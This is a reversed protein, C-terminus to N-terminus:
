DKTKGVAAVKEGENIPVPSFATVLKGEPVEFIRVKGDFGATVLHNKTPHFKLAFVAGRNEKLTAVRSGDASRYIRVEGNVNGVAILSGDHNYAISCVPGPQRELERIVNVDNNAATRGQNDSIRYIRPTGLEGGYAVIDQTPHRAICMVGELLKNVDDIFQGNAVNILKMARDRSGTLLRKGDVTFTTGFVWDSHSDFKILEKGDGAAVIRVTKDACGFAIKEGDPSFSVGYLSDNSIKFSNIQKRNEVDWVQIEGFLAPAGGSVALLKGNPSFAVSEIRPSEGVLRAIMGSGDPKHLIVEHYGSIALMDGDPTFAMTSIVPPAAYVPPASLKFSGAEPPTDDTAGEKIWREFLAIEEKTLPDGEKPMNPEEGSVEEVVRSEEPKGAAWSSGHKGGKQFTSYTTLDLDAKLKGPHHCGTCSRKLVPVIDRYYSVPKADQGATLSSYSSLCVLLGVVM